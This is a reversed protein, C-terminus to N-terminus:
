PEYTWGQYPGPVRRPVLLARTGAAPRGPGQAVSRHAGPSGDARTSPRAEEARRMRSVSRGPRRAVARRALSGSSGRADRTGSRLVDETPRLAGRPPDVPGEPDDPRSLQSLRHSPKGIAVPRATQSFRVPPASM